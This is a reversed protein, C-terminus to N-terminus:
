TSEEGVADPKDQAPWEGDDALEVLARVCDMIQAAGLWSAEFIELSQPADLALRYDLAQEPKEPPLIAVEFNLREAEHGVVYSEMWANLRDKFWHAIRESAMQM